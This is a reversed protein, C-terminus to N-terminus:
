ERMIGITKGNSMVSSVLASIVSFSKVVIRVAVPQKVLWIEYMKIQM